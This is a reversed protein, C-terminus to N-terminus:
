NSGLIQGFIRRGFTSKEGVFHTAGVDLTAGRRLGLALEAFLFFVANSICVWPARCRPGSGDTLERIERLDTSSILVSVLFSWRKRTAM